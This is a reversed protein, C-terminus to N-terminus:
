DLYSVEFAFIFRYINIYGQIQLNLIPSTIATGSDIIFSTASIVTINVGNNNNMYNIATKDALPNNTTFNNFCIYNGTSLNHNTSTTITMNRGVYQTFTCTIVDAPITIKNSPDSFSLSLTNIETIPKNFKIIGDHFDETQLYNLGASSQTDYRIKLLLHYDNVSKFSSDAFELFKIGLRYTLSNIAYAPFVAQMMKLSIMNRITEVTNVVGNSQNANDVYLWQYIGNTLSNKYWSDLVIYKKKCKHPFFIKKIIKINNVDCLSNINVTQNTQGNNNGNNNEEINENTKIKKDQSYLITKLLEHTDYSAPDNQGNARESSQGNARYKTQEIDRKARNAQKVKEKIEIINKTIMISLKNILSNISIKNELVLMKYKTLDIEDLSDLIFVYEQPELERNLLSLVSETIKIIFKNM